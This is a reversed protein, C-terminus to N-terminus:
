PPYLPIGTRTGRGPSRFSSTFPASLNERGRHDSGQSGSGNGRLGELGLVAESAGKHEGRPFASSRDRM